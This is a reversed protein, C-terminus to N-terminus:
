MLPNKTGHWPPLYVKLNPWQIKHLQHIGMLNFFKNSLQIENHYLLIAKDSPFNNLLGKFDVLTCSFSITLM